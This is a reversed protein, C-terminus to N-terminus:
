GSKCESNSDLRWSVLYDCDVSLGLYRIKGNYTQDFVRDWYRREIKDPMKKLWDASSKWEPWFSLDRDYCRWARRWTAWGWIHSYRSFYYSGNGRKQGDQFNNGTIMWVRPDDKYRELLVDCFSFFDPNPLCDDELIIGQEENEFFWSIAESVARKCGLNHERFLTYVSCPWDVTTAIQRVRRVLEGEGERQVRPGDAAVYLRPPRAYRIAEFVRATPEPRNFVLFLVASKM